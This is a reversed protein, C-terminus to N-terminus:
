SSAVEFMGHPGTSRPAGPRWDGIGTTFGASNLLNIIQEPSVQDEDYQVLLETSWEIFEPRHREDPASNIGSRRPNDIRKSLKKYTIPTIDGLFRIARKVKSKPINLAVCTDLVAKVFASVPVGYKGDNTYYFCSEYEKEFDRLKKKDSAGTERRTFDSVTEPNLRRPIYTSGKVSKVKVKMLRKKIPSLVITSKEEAAESAKEKKTAM